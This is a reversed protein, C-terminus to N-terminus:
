CTGLFSSRREPLRPSRTCNRRLCAPCRLLWFTVCCAAAVPNLGFVIAKEAGAVAFLGLGAADMLQVRNNLKKITSYWFFAVLGALISIFIYRWDTIAAPPVAGIIVDRTIGGANGAAFALVLVGFLDLKKRVAVVGGSLAFVFTGALDLVLLTTGVYNKLDGSIVSDM